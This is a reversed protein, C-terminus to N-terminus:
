QKLSRDFYRRLGEGLITFTFITLTIALCTYFPIWMSSLMDKRTSGLLTMWNLSTNEMQAAFAGGQVFVQTIFIAFIGMQGVLLATRGIDIFFSVIVSPFINPLIHHTLQRIPHVGVTIGAEIYPKKAILRTEEQIIFSVKGVEILSLILISWILRNDDLVLVPISLFLMKSFITPVSSFVRNWASVLWTFFGHNRSALLGLPIALIYRLITISLIILITDRTGAIIVILLNRGEHDSGFPFEQSPSFPATLIDNKEGFRVRSAEELEKEVFPLYPGIIALLLLFTCMIIGIVLLRNGKM